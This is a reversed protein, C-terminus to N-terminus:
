GCCGSGSVVADVKAAAGCCGGSAEAEAATGCCPAAGARAPDPLAVTTAPNGCCGSAGSAATLAAAPDSAFGGSAKVESM